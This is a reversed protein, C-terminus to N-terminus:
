IEFDDAKKPEGLSFNEQVYDLLLKLCKEFPYKETNVVLDANDPEEFPSNIGTFDKIEGARAKKYLGKADRKECAEISAKIYISHFNGHAAVRAKDRQEAFPSILASIVIMGADAFLAAVEGARRLNEKRDNLSFGLDSNLGNRLNDGDLMFVQYYKEFLKKQLALALTTKGSGSLGSFWLVGGKHGNNIARLHPDIKSEVEFLNKSKASAESRLNKFGTLDIIGGGCIRYNQLLVFRGSINNESFDDLAALGKIRFVVEAVNSKVVKSEKSDSLNNTDIVKEIEKVSVQYESTNIKMLYSAGVFLPEDGIWFLKARFINSLFPTDKEHSIIDGREIFIQDSLTIGVSEGAKAQSLKVDGFSQWSEISNVKVKKNSPSFLITDGQTIKGSEIRGVVIRREDFKYVDQVPFRLPLDTRKQKQTFSDLAEVLTAGKYWKTNTSHKTINDGERASIPIIFKPVVNISKLYQKYEKEIEKFKEESYDILDMKNVMVAIQNVGLLHLLYGHRKSQEKIGEKADIVLVAAESNAAGSIMNKLFEKHGPADIIVYNRKKTKFWIQTTDITIGQDKETQLADMLFSWEFPMGRKECSAKIQEYKGNPLSDTEYFLRGILSSKGHDVHGVIVIKLQEKEKM